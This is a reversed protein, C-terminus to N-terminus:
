VLNSNSSVRGSLARLFNWVNCCWDPIPGGHRRGASWNQWKGPFSLRDARSPLRGPILSMLCRSRLTGFAHQCTFGPESHQRCHHTTYSVFKATPPRSIAGSAPRIPPLKNSAFVGRCQVDLGGWSAARRCGRLSLDRALSVPPM